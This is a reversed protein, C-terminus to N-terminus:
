DGAPESLVEANAAIQRADHFERSQNLQQRMAQAERKTEYQGLLVRYWIGKDGLDIWAVWADLDRSQLNRMRALARDKRKFSNVHVTYIYPPKYLYQPLGETEAVIQVEGGSPAVPPEEAGITEDTDIKEDGSQEVSEFGIGFAKAAVTLPKGEKGGKGGVDPKEGSDVERTAEAAVLRKQAVGVRPKTEPTAPRITGRALSGAPKPPPELSQGIGGPDHRQVTERLDMVMFMTAVVVVLVLALFAPHFRKQLWGYYIRERSPMEGKLSERAQDVNVRRIKRSEALYAALLSRDAIMNILRPVGKSFRYIEGYAKKDLSITGKAGAMSLRHQIYSRAEKEELPQLHYRVPIRQELSRLEPQELKVPLEESGVLLIQILKEKNTELNSLLRVLELCSTSLNQAEDIILVATKGEALTELLFSNLEDLLEKRTSGEALLKFDQNIARLLEEENLLPNLILATIVTEADLQELLARCLTTKGTGIDGSIVVFGEQQQIGYLLHDLAKGHQESLFLFKPNPTLAFPKEELGFFELYM